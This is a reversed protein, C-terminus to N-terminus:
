GPLIPVTQLGKLIAGALKSRFADWVRYEVGDFRILREGYVTKGPVLNRTALRHAGDELTVQYIETFQPHPKVKIQM